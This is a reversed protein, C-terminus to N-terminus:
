VLSRKKDVKPAPKECVFPLLKWCHVSVWVSARGIVACQKEQDNAPNRHEWKSYDVM